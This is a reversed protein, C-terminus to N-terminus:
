TNCQVTARGIKLGTLLVIVLEEPSLRFSFANVEMTELKWATEQQDLYLTPIADKRLKKSSTHLLGNKLVSVYCNPEFHHTCIGASNVSFENPDRGIARLWKRRNTADKPIKHFTCYNVSTRYNSCKCSEIVCKM